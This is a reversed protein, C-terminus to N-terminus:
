VMSESFQDSAMAGPDQAVERKIRQYDELVRRPGQPSDTILQSAVGAMEPIERGMACSLEYCAVLELVQAVSM